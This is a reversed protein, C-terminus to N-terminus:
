RAPPWASRPPSLRCVRRLLSIMLALPPWSLRGRRAVAYARLEIRRGTLPLLRVGPQVPHGLPLLGVGLGATIMDQVLNLSDARRTIGPPSGPWPPSPASSTRTPPTAPTASGTTRESAPSYRPHRAATPPSPTPVGLGWLATWLPSPTIAPGTAAPALNYDYTLALDAQDAALLELAEAPEHERILM